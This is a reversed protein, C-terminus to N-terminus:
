VIRTGHIEKAGTKEIIYDRNSKNIGKGPMIIIRDGAYDVLKKLTNWNYLADKKGGKTLIRDVGLESLKDIAEKMEELTDLEDFAMHFTTEM